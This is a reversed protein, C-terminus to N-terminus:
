NWEIDELYETQKKLRTKRKVLVGMINYTKRNIRHKEGYGDKITLTNGVINVVKGFRWGRCRNGLGEFLVYKKMLKDKHM